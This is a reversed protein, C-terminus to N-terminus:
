PQRYLFPLIRRKLRQIHTLHIKGTLNESLLYLQYEYSSRFESIAADLNKGNYIKNFESTYNHIENTHENIALVLIKDKPIHHSNVYDIFEQSDITTFIDM